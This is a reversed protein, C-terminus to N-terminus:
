PLSVRDMPLVQTPHLSIFPAATPSTSLTCFSSTIDSTLVLEKLLHMQVKLVQQSTKSFLVQQSTKSFLNNHLQIHTCADTHAHSISLSCTSILEQHPHTRTHMHTHPVHSPVQIWSVQVGRRCTLITVTGLPNVQVSKLTQTTDLALESLPFLFVVVLPKATSPTIHAYTYTHLYLQM